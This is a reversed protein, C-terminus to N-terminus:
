RDAAGMTNSKGISPKGVSTPAPPLSMHVFCFQSAQDRRHLGAL